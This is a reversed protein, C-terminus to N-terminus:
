RLGQYGPHFKRIASAAEAETMREAKYEARIEEPTLTWVPAKMGAGPAYTKARNVLINQLTNIVEIARPYSELAGVSAQAAEARKRDAESFRPDTSITRALSQISVRLKERNSARKPDFGAGGFQAALRDLAYEGAVGVIGVDEPRLNNKIDALLEYNVGLQLLDQQVKSQTAVTPEAGGETMQFIPRGQDDTGMYISRGKNAVMQQIAADFLKIDSAPKGAKIAEDRDDMLKKLPSESGVRLGAKVKERELENEESLAGFTRIVRWAKEEIEPTLPKGTQYDPFLENFAAQYQADLKGLVSSMSGPRSELRAVVAERRQLAAEKAIRAKNFNNMTDTFAQTNVIFPHKAGIELLKSEAEASTWDTIKSAADAFAALGARTAIQNQLQINQLREQQALQISELTRRAFMTAMPGSRTIALTNAQGETAGRNLADQRIDTYFKAALANENFMEQEAQRTRLKEEPSSGLM